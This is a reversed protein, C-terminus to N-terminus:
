TFLEIQHCLYINIFVFFYVFSVGLGGWWYTSFSVTGQQTDGYFTVSTPAKSSIVWSVISVGAGFILCLTAMVAVTMAHGKQLRAM